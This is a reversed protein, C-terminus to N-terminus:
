LYDSKSCYDYIKRDWRTRDLFKQQLDPSLQDFKLTKNQTSQHKNLKFDRNSELLNLFSLNYSLSFIDEILSDVQTIDKIKFNKLKNIALTASEETIPQNYPLSLLQRILWSDELEGTQIYEEFTESKIDFFDCVQAHNSIFEHDSDSSKVYNFLSAARSFPERLNCFNIPKRNYFTCLKQIFQLNDEWGILSSQIFSSGSNRPEILVSFIFATENQIFELFDEPSFSQETIKSIESPIIENHLQQCFDLSHAEPFDKTLSDISIQALITKKNEKYDDYTKSEPFKEKLAIVANERLKRAYEIDSYISKFNNPYTEGIDLQDYSQSAIEAHYELEHLYDISCGNLNSNLYTYHAIANKAHHKLDHWYNVGSNRLGIFVTCKNGSPFDIAAQINGWDEQSKNKIYEELLCKTASLVYTGANKAIHYYVPLLTLNENLNPKKHLIITQPHEKKIDEISVDADQPLSYNSIIPCDILQNEPLDRNNFYKRGKLTCSVTYLATDFSIFNNNHLSVEKEILAEGYKLLVKLVPTNRYLAVGNLHGGWHAFTYLDQGGRYCSGAILFKESECYEIIKDIWYNKIPQTDAEIMLLNQYDSGVLSTMTKFFLNNPGASGGLAPIKPLNLEDLEEPTRAYLDDLKSLQHSHIKVDNINECNEYELLDNYDSDDGQNFYILLDIKKDLSASTKFFRDLCGRTDGALYERKTCLFVVALKNSFKM